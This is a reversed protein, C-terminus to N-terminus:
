AQSLARPQLWDQLKAPHTSGAFRKNARLEPKWSQLLRPIDAIENPTQLVKGIGFRAFQEHYGCTPERLWRCLFVPIGRDFCELATTSQATLAFRTQSWLHANSSGTMISVKQGLEGPLYRNVWQEYSKRNEFPHIKFVLHLGCEGALAALAPMLDRYMEEGRWPATSYESFFVLWSRQASNTYPERPASVLNDPASGVIEPSMRCVEIMYDREMESKALYLNAHNTKVALAFDLAGHHCALATIGRQKAIIVPLRTYPNADDASMCTVVNEADLFNMWADRVALGWPLLPGIQDLLGMAGSSAFECSGSVMQQKLTEWAQSLPALENEPVPTFYSDLSSAQVNEPMSEIRAVARAYVLLFHDQPFADAFSVATRSVNGYASPLLVVPRGSSKRRHAFRSRWSHTRDFKDQCIQLTQASDFRTMVHLYHRARRVFASKGSELNHLPAELLGALALAGPIPRSMFLEGCAGIEAALRQVLLVTTLEQFIALSLVDWWDIGFRDVVHGMGFQLLEKTRHLDQIGESFAFLSLVRCGAQRSWEQHTAPAAHGFDVILDWASPQGPLPYRDEPHLLLVKSRRSTPTGSPLNM